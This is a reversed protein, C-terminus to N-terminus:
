YSTRHFIRDHQHQQSPEEHETSLCLAESQAEKVSHRETNRFREQLRSKEMEDVAGVVGDGDIQWESHYLDIKGSVGAVM